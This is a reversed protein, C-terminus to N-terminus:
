VPLEGEGSIPLRLYRGGLTRALTEGEGAAGFGRRTDVIVATLSLARLSAGLREIEDAIRKKRAGADGGGAGLPVNARGDTFVLLVIRRAGRRAAARAVELSRHLGAALPTAGGVPLEDLRRMALAGSQSPRLLLEAGQGRFGVLAVRDRRVYSRRLLGAIAGKAQRIRNVAMSGSADVACVYLTGERRAFQKFRLDSAIVELGRAVRDSAAPPRAHDNIESDPDAEAARRRASERLTADAAIRRLTSPETDAKVYPGRRATV